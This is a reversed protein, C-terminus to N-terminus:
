LCIENARPTSVSAGPMVVVNEISAAGSVQAGEELVAFGKLSGSFTAGPARMVLADGAHELVTGAKWYMSTIDRLALAANRLGKDKLPSTAFVAVRSSVDLLRLAEGTAHLFDRPNGTEFWTFESVMARVKEGAAIAAALVDYLINSEGAPMYDFVRPSLLLLGIYHYGVADTGFVSGDKGFGRVAGDSACWVGGFQTGVLPHKMVLVSPDHPLIVEDGNAVFFSDNDGIARKDLWGRAKWIGGGSGLPVGDEHSVHVQLDASSISSALSTIQEPKWHSNLVLEDVGAARMLWLPYKMLPIGLFPVAPKAFRDTIPRLRTGLGATLMM